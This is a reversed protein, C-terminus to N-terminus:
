GKSKRMRYRWIIVSSLIVLLLVGMEVAFRFNSGARGTLFALWEPLPQPINQQRSDIWAPYDGIAWIRGDDGKLLQGGSFGANDETYHRVEQYKGGAEQFVGIFEDPYHNGLEQVMVWIRGLSDAALDKVRLYKVMTEDMFNLGSWTWKSQEPRFVGLIPRGDEKRPKQLLFINGKEDRDICNDLDPARAEELETIKAWKGDEWLYFANAFDGSIYVALSGDSGPQIWDAPSNM